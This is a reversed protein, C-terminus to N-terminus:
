EDDSDNDPEYGPEFPRLAEAIAGQDGSMRAEILRLLDGGLESRDEQTGDFEDYLADFEEATIVPPSDALVTDPSGPTATDSGPTVTDSSGSESRAAIEDDDTNERMEEDAESNEDALMEEDAESNEDALKEFDESGSEDKTLDKLSYPEFESCELTMFGAYYQSIWSVLNILIVLCTYSLYPHKSLFLVLFLIM